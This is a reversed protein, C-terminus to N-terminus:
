KTESLAALVERAFDHPTPLGVGDIIARAHAIIKTHMAPEMFIVKSITTGVVTWYAPSGRPPDGVSVYVDERRDEPYSSHKDWPVWPVRPHGLSDFYNPTMLKKNHDEFRTFDVTVKVISPEHHESQVSAIVGMMGTEFGTELEEINPLFKIIAGVQATYEEAKM